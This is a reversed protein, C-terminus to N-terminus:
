QQVGDVIFLHGLDSSLSLPCSFSSPHAFSPADGGRRFYAIWTAVIKQDVRRIVTGNTRWVEPDGKLLYTDTSEWYVPANKSSTEKMPVNIYGTAHGLFEIDKKTIHVKELIKVGGDKECMQTIKKDWDAKDAALASCGTLFLFIVVTPALINPTLTAIRRLYSKPVFPSLGRKIVLNM